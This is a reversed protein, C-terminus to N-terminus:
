KNKKAYTKKLQKRLKLQETLEYTWDDLFKNIYQCDAIDINEFRKTKDKIEKLFKIDGEISKKSNRDILKIM